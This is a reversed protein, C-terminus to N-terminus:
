PSPEIYLLEDRGLARNSELVVYGGALMHSPQPASAAVWAWAPDISAAIDQVSNDAAYIALSADNRIAAVSTSALSGGEAIHFSAATSIMQLAHTQTQIRDLDVSDAGAAGPNKLVFLATASVAFAYMTNPELYVSTATASDVRRRVSASDVFYISPMAIADYTGSPDYGVGKVNNNANDRTLAWSSSVYFLGDGGGQSNAAIWLAPGTDPQAGFVLRECNDPGTTDPAAPRYDHVTTTTDKAVEIIARGASVALMATFPDYLAAVSAPANGLTGTVGDGFDLPKYPVVGTLDVLVRVKWGASLQVHSRPDIVDPLSVPTLSFLQDCGSLVFVLVIAIRTM